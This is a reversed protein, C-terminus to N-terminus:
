VSLLERLSSVTRCLKKNTDGDSRVLHESDSEFDLHNGDKPENQRRIQIPMMKAANAARVDEETDGVYVVESPTLGTAALAPTFISPDPKKAGVEGSIVISEFLEGIGYESLYRRVHRPHDFNSILALRKSEKLEKLVSICDPDLTIEGQWKEAILDAIDGISNNSVTVELSSCLSKIRKEFVTLNLDQSAPEHQGFFRDCEKSFEEKSLTLGYERLSTHFHNLWETWAKRMNGYVFLTGYLDFFIGRIM